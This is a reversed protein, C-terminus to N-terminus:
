GVLRPPSSFRGFDGVAAVIALAVTADVGPITVLRRVEARELAVRGLEADVIRLEQGHVDLRRGLAGVAQHEDAPLDQTALWARGKTGFLDAAPCRGILNRHLISQVQHRCGPGSGCSTPGVPSRVASRTPHDDPLWVSPLSNAALLGAVVAADVKDTKGKARRDGPDQQPNSVVV